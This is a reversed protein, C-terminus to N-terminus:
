NSTFKIGQNAKLRKAEKAEKDDAILKQMKNAMEPLALISQKLAHLPSGLLYEEQQMVKNATSIDKIDAKIWKTASVSGTVKEPNTSILKGVIETYNRDQFSRGLKTGVADLYLKPGNNLMWSLLSTGNTLGSLTAKVPKESIATSVYVSTCKYFCAESYGMLNRFEESYQFGKLRTVSLSLTVEKELRKGNVETVGEILECIFTLMLSMVPIASVSEKESKKTNKSPMITTIIVLDCGNGKLPQLLVDQPVLLLCVDCKGASKVFTTRCGTLFLGCGVLGKSFIVLLTLLKRM